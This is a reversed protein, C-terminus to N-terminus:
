SAVFNVNRTRQILDICCVEPLGCSVLCPSQQQCSNSLMVPVLSRCATAFDKCISLFSSCQCKKRVSSARRFQQMLLQACVTRPCMQWVHTLQRLPQVPSFASSSCASCLWLWDVAVANCRKGNFERLPITVRSRSSGYCVQTCELVVNTQIGIVASDSGSEWWSGRFRGSSPGSSRRACASTGCLLGLPRGRFPVPCRPVASPEM